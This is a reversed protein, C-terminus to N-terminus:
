LGQLFNSAYLVCRVASVLRVRPTKSLHHRGKYLQNDSVLKELNTRYCKCIHNACEEKAVYRGWGPLLTIFISCWLSQAIVNSLRNVMYKPLVLVTGIKTTSFDLRWLMCLCVGCWAHRWTLRNNILRDSKDAIKSLLLTVDKIIHKEVNQYDISTGYRSEEQLDISSGENWLVFRSFSTESLWSYLPLCWRELVVLTLSTLATLHAM